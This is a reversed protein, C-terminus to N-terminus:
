HSMSQAARRLRSGSCCYARYSPAPDSSLKKHSKNMILPKRLTIQAGLLLALVCATSIYVIACPQVLDQWNPGRTAFSFLM